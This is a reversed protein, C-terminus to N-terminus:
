IRSRGGSDGPSLQAGFRVDLDFSGEDVEILAAVAQRMRVRMEGLTPGDSIAVLQPRVTVVGTWYGTEDQALNAVHIPRM